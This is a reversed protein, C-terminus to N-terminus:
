KVNPEIGKKVCNAYYSQEKKNITSINNSMNLLYLPKNIVYYKKNENLLKTFLEYDQAYRFSENYKGLEILVGKKIILTGHIFPNKYKILFKKPINNTYRPIKKGNDNRIAITTCFDLNKHKFITLQEEIRTSISIDDADHRGIIEGNSNEILKNLSKTLGINLKNYFPKVRENQEALKAIKLKTDDSSGDDLLLIEINQYTQSLLSDISKTISEGNNHSSVIISVLPNKNM